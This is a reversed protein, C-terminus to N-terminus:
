SHPIAACEKACDNACAGAACGCSILAQFAWDSGCLSGAYNQNLCDM